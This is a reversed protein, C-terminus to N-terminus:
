SRKKAPQKVPVVNQTKLITLYQVAGEKLPHTDPATSVFKQLHDAGEQALAKDNDKLWALDVLGLGLYAQADLNEAAMELVKRYAAVAEERHETLRMVDGLTMQAAVKKASDTELALYETVLTTADGTKINASGTYGKLRHADIAITYLGLKLADRRKQEAADKPAEAASVIKMAAAFGALVEDLYRNAEVYKARRQDVDTLKAGENYINRGKAKLSMMKGSWLIPTSGIFDPVAEIGQTYKEIALDYNGANHAANGEENSRRAIEDANKLKENKATIEANKAELEARAKKEEASMETGGDASSSSAAQKRVEDATIKRGDGPAVIIVIREQGAKVGSYVTPNIGPGSIAFAYEAGLILGAFTFEGKKNTKASLPALKVDTRYAEVVAGAVPAKTGEMEVTGSTSATNQGFAHGGSILSLCALLLFSFYVKRFM